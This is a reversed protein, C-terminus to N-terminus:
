IRCFRNVKRPNGFQPIPGPGPRPLGANSRKRLDSVSGMNGNGIRRQIPGPAAIQFRQKTDPSPRNSTMTPWDHRQGTEQPFKSRRLWTATLRWLKNTRAPSM